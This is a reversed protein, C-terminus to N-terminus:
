RADRNHRERALMSQELEETVWRHRSGVGLNQLRHCWRPPEVLDTAATTTVSRATSLPRNAHLLAQIPADLWMPM